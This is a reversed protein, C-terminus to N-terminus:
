RRGRCALPHGACFGLGRRRRKILVADIEGLLGALALEVRDDAPVGLDAADDLHQGAPGLVIRHQDAFGPHALGRDDFAEGLPQDGTVYRVRQLAAPQDREVQARHDGARLVAPLELLPELGHEGLDAVGLTLDDGEDVLQM